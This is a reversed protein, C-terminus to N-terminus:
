VGPFAEYLMFTMFEVCTLKLRHKLYEAGFNEVILKVFSKLSLLVSDESLQLYEDLTDAAVGYALMWLAATMRILPNIGQRGTADSRRMFIGKGHIKAYIREFVHKPVQFRRM